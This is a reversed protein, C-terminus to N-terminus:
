EPAIEPEIETWELLDENWEFYGQSPMPSPAGWTATEEDLLWSEFPKEAVFADRESDYTMGIGAYNKRLPTGGLAHEGKYTNYSTQIWTGGLNEVLWDLGENPMANDTVLVRTVISDNNIEAFHAM